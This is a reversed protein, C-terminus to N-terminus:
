SSRVRTAVSNVVVKALEYLWVSERSDTRSTSLM